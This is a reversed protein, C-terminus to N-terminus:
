TAIRRSIGAPTATTLRPDDDEDAEIFYAASFPENIEALTRARSVTEQVLEQWWETITMGHEAAWEARAALWAERTGYVARGTEAPDHSWSPDSFTRLAVPPVDIFVKPTLDRPKM